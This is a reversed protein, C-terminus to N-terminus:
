RQANRRRVKVAVEPAPGDVWCSASHFPGSRVKLQTAAPHPPWVMHKEFSATTAHYDAHEIMALPPDESISRRPGIRNELDIRYGLCEGTQQQRLHDHLLSDGKILRSGSPEQSNSAKPGGTTIGTVGRVVDLSQRLLSAHHGQSPGTKSAACPMAM